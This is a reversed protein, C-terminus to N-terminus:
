LYGGKQEKSKVVKLNIMSMLVICVSPLALKDGVGNSMSIIYSGTFSRAECALFFPLSVFSFLDLIFCRWTSIGRPKWDFSVFFFPNLELNVTKM